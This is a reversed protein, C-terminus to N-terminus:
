RVRWVAVLDRGLMSTQLLAKNVADVEAAFCGLQLSIVVDIIEVALFLRVCRGRILCHAAAVPLIVEHLRSTVAAPDFRVGASWFSCEM